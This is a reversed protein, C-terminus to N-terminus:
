RMIYLIGHGRLTIKKGPPVQRGDEIIMTLKPLKLNTMLKDYLKIRM